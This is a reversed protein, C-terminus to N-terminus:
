RTKSYLLGLEFYFLLAKAFPLPARFVCLSVVVKTFYL